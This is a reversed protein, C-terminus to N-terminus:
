FTFRHKRPLCPAISLQPNSFLFPIILTGVAALTLTRHESSGRDGRTEGKSERHAGGAPNCAIERSSHGERARRM